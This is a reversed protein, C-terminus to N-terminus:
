TTSSTEGDGIPGFLEELLFQTRPPIVAKPYMSEVLALGEEARTFGLEKFLVRIDETDNSVRAAFIKMALLYKPSAASVELSPTSFIIKSEPDDGPAFSKAADNLWDQPLGLDEAVLQAAAYIRSKPEFIADIDRTVRERAYALAMAAGGVVFLQGRVGERELQDSLAQFATLMSRRNMPARSVSLIGKM